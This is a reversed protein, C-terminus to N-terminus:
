GDMGSGGRQAVHLLMAQQRLVDAHNRRCSAPGLPQHQQAHVLEQKAVPQRATTLRHM